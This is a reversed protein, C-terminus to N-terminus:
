DSIRIWWTGAQKAIRYSKNLADMKIKLDREGATYELILVILAKIDLRQPKPM